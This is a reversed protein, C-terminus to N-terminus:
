GVEAGHYPVEVHLEARPVLLEFVGLRVNRAAEGQDLLAVSLAVPLQHLPLYGPGGLLPASLLGLQYAAEIIRRQRGQTPARVFRIARENGGRLRGSTTRFPELPGSEARSSGVTMKRCMPLVAPVVSRLIRRRLKRDASIMTTRALPRGRVSVRSSKPVRGCASRARGRRMMPWVTNPSCSRTGRGEVYMEITRLGLLRTSDCYLKTSRVGPGRWLSSTM